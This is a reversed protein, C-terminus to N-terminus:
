RTRYFEIRRNRQRGEKTLNTDIPYDQGYGVAVIRRSDIGRNVLWQKVADARRQSLRNNLGRSGTDDTHGRIEVMMDPHQQLTNLALTLISESASTIVASGTQFVIGELVIPKGVEAKLEKKAADDRPDLPNTGRKVESGDDVSGNDTDKNRPDTKYTTVEEGDTLGDGDTDAKVPSTGHQLVEDGDNLGDTDSDLRLPNTEHKLVEEGDNLRDGDSDSKNPFTTYKLVEDGDSLNDRDSDSRLPDTNYRWIEDGDNLGDGDSDARYPNTGYKREDANSLGDGDDDGDDGGGFYFNFGIRGTPYWDSIGPRQTEDLTSHGKWHDSWDDMFRGGFDLAFSASRGLAFEFGFGVPIHVSTNVNYVDDPIYNNFRDQRLYAAGGVGVYLYPRVELTPPFHYWLALDASGVSLAMYEPVRPPVGPFDEPFQYAILRDYGVM